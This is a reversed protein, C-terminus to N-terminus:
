RIRVAQIFGNATCTSVTFTAQALLYVTTTTSVKIYYPAPDLTVTVGVASIGAQVTLPFGSVIPQFTASVNSLGAQAASINTTGAPIVSVWGSVMWNGPTLSLTVVNAATISTLPIATANASLYEGISGAQASDNTATGKIGVTSSPTILGTSTIAAFTSAPVAVSLGFGAIPGAMYNRVFATTALQTSNTNTGATPAAPTGTFTPSAIPAYTSAAATSSLGGLNALAATASAVDSLNSAATLGGIAAPTVTAWHASGTPGTSLIAQGSTSGAPNILAPPVFTTAYASFTLLAALASALIRKM